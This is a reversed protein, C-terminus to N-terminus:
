YQSFTWEQDDLPCTSRTKLWRTICHFHYSHGCAGFSVNCSDANHPEATCTICPIMLLNHCIACTDSDGSYKWVAVANWKKVVVKPKNDQPASGANNEDAPASM